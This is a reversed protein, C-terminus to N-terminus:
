SIPAGTTGKRVTPTRRPGTAACARVGVTLSPFTSFIRSLGSTQKLHIIRMARGAHYMPGFEKPSLEEKSMRSVLM